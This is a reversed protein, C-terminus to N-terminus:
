CFLFKKLKLKLYLPAHAPKSWPCIIGLYHASYRVPLKKVEEAEREGRDLLKCNRNKGHKYGHTSM